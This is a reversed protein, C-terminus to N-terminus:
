KNGRLHKRCCKAVLKKRRKHTVKGFGHLINCCLDWLWLINQKPQAAWLVLKERRQKKDEGEGRLTWIRTTTCAGGSSIGHATKIHQSAGVNFIHKLITSYYQALDSATNTPPSIGGGGWRWFVWIVHFTRWPQEECHQLVLPFVSGPRKCSEVHKLIRMHLFGVIDPHSKHWSNPCYSGIWEWLCWRGM